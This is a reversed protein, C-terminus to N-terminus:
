APADVPELARAFAGALAPEAAVIDVLVSDPYRKFDDRLLAALHATVRHQVENVTRLWGSDTLGVGGVEYGDRAAVTLEHAFTALVQTQDATTLGSFMGALETRTM